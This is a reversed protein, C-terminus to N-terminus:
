CVNVLGCGAPDNILKYLPMQPAEPVIREIPAIGSIVQKTFVYVVIFLMLEREASLVSHFGCRTKAFREFVRFFREIANTTRPLSNDRLAPTLRGIKNRVGTLWRGLGWQHEADEAELAALRRTVTRPDCTQVVRKMQHKLWTRTDESLGCGHKQFWRTVSQQHHFLCLLHKAKPLMWAMASEYGALGDTIVARPLKGLRKLQLFFWACAWKTRTPSLYTFLPLETEQDLGVFWFFWVHRIKIWKEDAYLCTGRVRSVIWGQIIPFLAVALGLVWIYVSSPDHGVKQALRSLPVNWFYDSMLGVMQRVQPSIASMRANPTLLGQVAAKHQQQGIAEVEEPLPLTVPSRKLDIDTEHTGHEGQPGAEIEQGEELEEVGEVAKVTEVVEGANVDKAQACAARLLQEVRIMDPSPKFTGTQLAALAEELLLAEKPHWTGAEWRRRIEQRVVTCSVEALATRINAPTLDTRGLRASVRVCLAPASALIDRQVEAQVAEVVSADVKRKRELFERMSGTCAWFERWYNNVNQREKYQFADALQQFTYRPEGTEVDCWGRLFILCAKTNSPVDPFSWQGYETKLLMENSQEVHKLLLTHDSVTQETTHGQAAAQCVAEPSSFTQHELAVFRKLVTEPVHEQQLNVLSQHSLFFRTRYEVQLESM